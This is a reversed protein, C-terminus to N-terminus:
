PTRRCNEITEDGERNGRVESIILEIWPPPYRVRIRRAPEVTTDAAQCPRGSCVLGGVDGVTVAGVVSGNDATM